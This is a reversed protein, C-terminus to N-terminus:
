SMTESYERRYMEDAALFAAALRRGWAAQSEPSLILDQRIEVVLHPISGGEGHLQMSYGAMEERVFPENDAVILGEEAKLATLLCDALRRDRNHLVAAHMDRRVGKFVDTMSHQGILLTRQGARQRQDLIAAVATHYPVFIDRQRARIQEEPLNQNGAIVTCESSTVISEPDQLHRNCDIVLRSYNQAILPADLSESVAQAVALAGIDWAIHRQLEEAALGLKNLRQPIYASAHDVTLVFASRGQPRSLSVAPPEDPALLCYTMQAISHM